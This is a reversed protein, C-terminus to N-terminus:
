PIQLKRFKPSPYRPHKPLSRYFVKLSAPALSKYKHIIKSLQNLAPALNSKTPKDSKEWLSVYDSQQPTTSFIPVSQTKRAIVFLSSPRTNVLTVRQRIVAPDQVEYWNAKYGDEFLILKKVEFGNIESFVRFILEPSFQYFGHGCLNNTPTIGIFHGGVEIMEMCNKIAVPFNFVHELTGADLVTTFRNKFTDPLPLNFDHVHTPSEYDSADFSSIENAGLTQLFPEAYGNEETLLLKVKETTVDFGFETLDKKFSDVYSYLKHRGIMATKAFSVGQTRAYLLSKTGNIGLGM